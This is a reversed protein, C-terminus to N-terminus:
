SEPRAPTPPSLQLSNTMGDGCSGPYTTSINIKDKSPTSSPPNNHKTDKKGKKKSKKYDKVKTNKDQFM